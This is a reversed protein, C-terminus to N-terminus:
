LGTKDLGGFLAGDDGFIPDVPVVLRTSSDRVDFVTSGGSVRVVGKLEKVEKEMECNVFGNAIGCATLGAGTFPFSNEGFGDEECAREGKDPNSMM